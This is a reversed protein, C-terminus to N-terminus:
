LADMDASAAKREIEKHEKKHQQYLSFKVVDLVVVGGALVVHKKLIILYDGLDINLEKSDDDADEKGEEIEQVEASDQVEKCKKAGQVKCLGQSLGLPWRM